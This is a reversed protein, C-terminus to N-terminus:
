ATEESATRFLNILFSAVLHNLIMHVDETPGYEGHLTPVHVNLHAIQKLRGGDFGSLAVTTAGNANAHEVAKLINPSNGSASIAVVLDGRSMQARLQQVFIEDYGYDNGIATLMSVNETLSLAHFPKAWSRTGIAVDNAFHNATAASGGNGMFFIRAGEERARLLADIFARVARVDVRGLIESLYEFYGRAFKAADPAERYIQEIRNM